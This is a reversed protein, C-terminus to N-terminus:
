FIFVYIFYIMGRGLEKAQLLGYCFFVTKSKYMESALSTGKQFAPSGSKRQEVPYFHVWM